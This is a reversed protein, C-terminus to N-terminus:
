HAPEFSGAEGWFPFPASGEFNNRYLRGDDGTYILMDYDIMQVGRFKSTAIQHIANNGTEKTFVTIYGSQVASFCYRQHEPEIGFSLPKSSSNLTDITLPGILVKDNVHRVDLINVTYTDNGISRLYGLTDKRYVTPCFGDTIMTVTKNQEAILYINGSVYGILLSDNIYVIEDFNQTYDSQIVTDGFKSTYYILHNRLFAITDNNVAMTPSHLNEELLVPFRVPNVIAARYIGNYSTISTDIRIMTVTNRDPSISPETEIRYFTQGNGNGNGGPTVIRDKECTLFVISLVLLFIIFGQKM